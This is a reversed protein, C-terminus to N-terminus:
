ERYGQKRLRGIEKRTIKVPHSLGDFEQINFGQKKWEQLKTKMDNTRKQKKLVKFEKKQRKHKEKIKRIVKKKIEIFKHKIKEKKKPEKTKTLENQKIHEIRSLYFKMEDKHQKGLELFLKDREHIFYFVLAVIGFLFILVAISFIIIILNSDFTLIDKDNGISFLYSSTSVSNGYTDEFDAIVAFVYNGLSIKKPLSITKTIMTETGVAINETESVIAENDLNKILSTLKITHTQTDKLNFIKVGASIKEGPKIEKYEPSVELNAAFLATKSQIEIIIPIEIESSDAKVILKDVYVGPIDKFYDSKFTVIIDKSEDKKLAFNEESLSVMGLNKISLQFNKESKLNTIKVNSSIEEGIKLISKLIVTNVKFDDSKSNSKFYVFLALIIIVLISLIILKKNRM